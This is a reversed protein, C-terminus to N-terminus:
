SLFGLPSSGLGRLVQPGFALLAALALTALSRLAMRM